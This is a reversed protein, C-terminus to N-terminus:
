KRVQLLRNFLNKIYGPLLRWKLLKYFRAIRSLAIKNEFIETTFVVSRKENLISTFVNNTKCHVGSGDHGINNVYSMVPNVCLGNNNFISAYWYVAWTNLKNKKNSMVQGFFNNAGDLNFRRIDANSFKKILAETDKEFFQWRDAWTAWGWCNMARWLFVDGLGKTDISYNWGSIHWVKKEDAYFDLADNMFRLFFPSSVIDDELVIVRGYKNVISTVGEIINRALGYNEERESIHVSKFGTVTAIYDRVGKVADADKPSKAGDSYVYLDSDSALENAQLAEVTHRTHHPRNYVFLVIPAPTM